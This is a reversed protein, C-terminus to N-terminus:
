LRKVMTRLKNNVWLDCLIACRRGIGHREAHDIHKQDDYRGKRSRQIPVDAM